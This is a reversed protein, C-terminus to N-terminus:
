AARRNLPAQASMTHFFELMRDVARRASSATGFVQMVSFQDNQIVLVWGREAQAISLRPPAASAEAPECGRRPATRESSRSCSQRKSSRLPGATMDVSTALNMGNYLGCLARISSAEQALLHGFRLLTSPFGSRDRTWPGRRRAVQRRAPNLTRTRDAM